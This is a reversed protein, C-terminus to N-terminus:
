SGRILPRYGVLKGARRPLTRVSHRAVESVALKVVERSHEDYERDLTSMTASSEPQHSRWIAYWRFLEREHRPPLQHFDFLDPRLKLFQRQIECLESPGLARILTRSFVDLGMEQARGLYSGSKQRESDMDSHSYSEFKSVLKSVSGLTTFHCGSDRIVREPRAHCRQYHPGSLESFPMARALRDYQNTKALQWNAYRFTRPMELATLGSFGGRLTLLVEPHVIEDVDSVLIVDDPEAGDLGRTM